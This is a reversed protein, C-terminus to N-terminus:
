RRGGSARGPETARLLAELAARAEDVIAGVDAGRQRAVAAPPRGELVVARFALRADRPLRHLAVAAARVARADLGLPRALAAIREVEDPEPARDAALAEADERLLDLIAEDVVEAIWTEFAPQGRYDVGRQACRAIARLHVRDADLLWAGAALRAGVIRRLDLPDGDVLREVVDAPRRGALVSRWPVPLAASTPAPDFLGAGPEAVRGAADPAAAETGPADPDSAASRAAAGPRRRSESSPSPPSPDRPERRAM